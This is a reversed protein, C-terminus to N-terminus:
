KKFFLFTKILILLNSYNIFALLDYWRTKKTFIYSLIHDYIGDYYNYISIYNDRCVSDFYGKLGIIKLQNMLSIDPVKKKDLRTMFIKDIENYSQTIGNVTFGTLIGKNTVYGIRYINCDSTDTNLNYDTILGDSGAIMFRCNEYDRPEIISAKVGNSFELNIEACNKAYKILKAKLVYKRGVLLKLTAFAHYKFGGHFLWIKRLKGIKGEEIIHRAIQYNPLFPSEETIFVHRFKKLKKIYDLNKLPMVPTDLFLTKEFLKLEVLKSIIEPINKTTIAIIIWDIKDFDFNDLSTSTKIDGYKKIQEFNTNTRSYVGLINFRNDMCCLAPLITNQIRRGAGVILVNIHKNNKM